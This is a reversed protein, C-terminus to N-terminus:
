KFDVLMDVVVPKTLTLEFDRILNTSGLMPFIVIQKRPLSLAVPCNPEWEFALRILDYKKM